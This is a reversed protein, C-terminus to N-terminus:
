SNLSSQPVRSWTKIVQKDGKANLAEVKQVPKKLM